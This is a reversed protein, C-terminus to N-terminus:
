RGKERLNGGKNNLLSKLINNSICLYQNALLCDVHVYYSAIQEAYEIARTLQGHQQMIPLGHNILYNILAKEDKLTQLYLAKLIAYTPDEQDTLLVLEEKLIEEAKNFEQMRVYIQAINAITLYYSPTHKQKLQLSKSYYDLALLPKKDSEYLFGLNHLTRATEAVDQILDADDLLELLLIKAKTYECTNILHIAIITKVHLVRYINSTEQFITLAKHGFHIALTSHDLKSHVLAKFYYYERVKDSFKEVLESIKNLLELSDIFKERKFYYIAHLFDLLYREYQSFKRSHKMINHLMEKATDLENLFLHYRIEYLEYLYVLNTCTIYSQHNKLHNYISEAKTSHLKEMSDYFLDVENKFDQFKREETEISINLRECLLNLTDVNAEKTNNEIKSLHTISCIGKCLEEQTKCQNKRHYYIIKGIEM